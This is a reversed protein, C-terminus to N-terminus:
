AFSTHDPDGAPDGGVHLVEVGCPMDTILTYGDVVIPDWLQNADIPHGAVSEEPRPYGCDFVPTRLAVPAPNSPDSVDLVWLGAHFNAMYLREAVVQFNHLSYALGDDHPVGPPIWTGLYQPNAYDTMDVIYLAPPVDFLTETAGFAIRRDGVKARLATHVRDIPVEASEGRWAGIQLPALPNAVDFVRIGHLEAAVVLIPEGTLPDEQATMDHPALLLAPGLPSIASYYTAYRAVEPDSQPFASGVPVATKQGTPLEEVRFTTPGTASACWVYSVGGIRLTNLRHCGGGFADGVRVPATPDSVDWISFARGPENVNTSFRPGPYPVYVLPLEEDIKVDGYAGPEDFTSLVKLEPLATRDLLVIRLDVGAGGTVVAMAILDGENDLETYEGLSAQDDAENFTSRDLAEVNRLVETHLDRINHEHEDDFVLDGLEEWPLQALEAQRASAPDDDGDLCGALLPMAALLLAAALAPFRM